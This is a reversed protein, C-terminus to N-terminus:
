CIQSTKEANKKPRKGGNFITSSGGLTIKYEVKSKDPSNNSLCDVFKAKIDRQM